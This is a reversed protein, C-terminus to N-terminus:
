WPWGGLFPDGVRYLDGLEWGERLSTELTEPKVATITEEKNVNFVFLGVKGELFMSTFSDLFDPSHSSIFIQETSKLRLIWNAIVKLWAPHINLEPEDIALITMREPTLLLLVLLMAKLTGDSMEYLKYTQNNIRLQLGRKREDSLVFKIRELGPILEKLSDTYLDIFDYKEDLYGLVNVFNSGDKSLHNVSIETRVPERVADLNFNTSSYVHFRKFFERVSQVTQNFNPYFDVRFKESELLSDVQRFVTDYNNVDFQLTSAKNSRTSVSFNGKGPIVKHCQIFEFPRSQGKLPKDYSLNEYTIFFGKPIQDSTGVQFQLEYSLNPYNKKYKSNFNLEDDNSLINTNLIWKMDIKGPKIVQRNLVDDWGHNPKSLEDLFASERKENLLLNSFFSIADILNSKGSNNPGVLINIPKFDLRELNLNRFNKVSFSKLM